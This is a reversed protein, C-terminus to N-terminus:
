KRDLRVPASHTLPAEVSGSSGAAVAQASSGSRWSVLEWRAAAALLPMLASLTTSLQTNVVWATVGTSCAATPLTPWVGAGSVRTAGAPRVM